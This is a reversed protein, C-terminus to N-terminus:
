SRARASRASEGLATAAITPAKDQKRQEKDKQKTVLQQQNKKKDKKGGKDGM